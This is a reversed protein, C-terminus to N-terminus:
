NGYVSAALLIEAMIRWTSINADVKEDMNKYYGDMDMTFKGLGTLYDILSRNEWESNNQLYDQILCETFYQFEDRSTIKKAYDILEDGILLNTM